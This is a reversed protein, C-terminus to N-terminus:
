IQNAYDLLKDFASISRSLSAFQVHLILIEYIHRTMLLSELPPGSGEKSRPMVLRFRSAVSDGPIEAFSFHWFLNDGGM